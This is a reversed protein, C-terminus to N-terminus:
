GRQSYRGSTYSVVDLFVGFGVVLWGFGSVGFVPAYAIVWFLVTWPLFVLGLLKVWFGPIALDVRSADFIWAFIFAVRPGILAMLAFVCCM